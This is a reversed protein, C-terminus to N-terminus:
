HCYTRTAANVVADIDQPAIGKGMLSNQTQWPAAGASQYACVLHGANILTDSSYYTIGHAGLENLYADDQPDAHALPASSMLVAASTILAAAVTTPQMMKDSLYVADADTLFPAHETHLHNYVFFWTRVAPSHVRRLRHSFGRLLWEPSM